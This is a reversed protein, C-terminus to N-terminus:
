RYEALRRGIGGLAGAAALVALVAAGVPLGTLAGRGDEASKKFEAEEHDLAQGLATDIADFSQGTTGKASAKDPSGIIKDLAGSYDGGDDSNRAETHRSKWVKVNKIATTVPSRGAADDALAAAQGLLGKGGDDGGLVDMQQGFEFDYLDVITGDGLEKTAAGRSILTLNEDGRAKLAAIRANDLVTLSRVAHDYSDDLGIRAVTHGVVLWLVAVTTAATAALLGSNFVRNTQRYTRQQAWLLAGLALVGISIAAWPYPTADGYDSDLRDNENRYLKEAEKLMQNQMLDDAYRLYAGGLPLGERNNARAREILGTYRPLLKNLEAIIAASDADAQTNSAAKALKQAATDIDRAYRDRVNKPEQGGALFGSSEATNADALSRYIDAADTSLPQSHHLVQDAADARETAQWSTVVGFAVILLALLASIIRLRGPETAAQARLREAGEAWVSRRALVDGAPVQGPGPGPAGSPRAPAGPASPVPRAQSPIAIPAPTAPGLAAGQPAASGNPPHTM